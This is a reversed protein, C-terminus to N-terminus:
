RAKRLIAGHETEFVTEFGDFRPVGGVAMVWGAETLVETRPRDRDDVLPVLRYEALLYAARMYSFSYGEWWKSYPTWYAVQSGRPVSRRMERALLDLGPLRRYPLADYHRVAAERDIRLTKLFFPQFGIVVIAVLVVFALVPTSRDERNTM